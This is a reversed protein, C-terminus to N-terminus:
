KEGSTMLNMLGGTHWFVVRAGKPIRGENVMRTLGYMAKGTYVPDLPLGELKVIDEIFAMLDSDFQGYGGFRYDATLAIFELPVEGGLLAAIAERGRSETRAVSVGQVKTTWGLRAVGMLLGAQTGGTGSAHVLWDPAFPLEAVAQAYAEAGEPSHGGGPVVLVRKGESKAREVVTDITSRIADAEVYTVDAGTARYFFANGCTPPSLSPEGHLVLHVSCGLQAGMMAIVRAHNSDAGGNTVLLTSDDEGVCHSALIRRNKRVKNGGMFEPILDDRKVWLEVGLVGSLSKMKYFPSPKLEIMDM